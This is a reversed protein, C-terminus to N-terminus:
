FRFKDLNPKNKKERQLEYEYLVKGLNKLFPYTIELYEYKGDNYIGNHNSQVVAAVLFEVGNEFDVIYANDINYGYSDGYKNFIRINPNPMVGKERGLYLFKSYTTWFRDPNYYPYDTEEPYRSMYKYIFRYDDETLHYRDTKEFAEPFLLRKLLKQQDALPYANLGEFSFPQEVLNGSADMYANGQVTNRIDLPYDQPDYQAPQRYVVKNGSYFTIPNTNKAWEGKDGIALRNVIRSQDAGYKKLRRNIDARGLFEFLRNYADNDSVLLIKKIYHGITPLGTESSTDRTVPTQKEYASDIKLPTDKSLGQINLENIKELAFISAPLKVTSAPYFYWSPDLRYAYSTFHPINYEDRDIQTYLIQVEHKNAHDLITSFLDRRSELLNNLFLTDPQQAFPKAAYLLFCLIFSCKKM